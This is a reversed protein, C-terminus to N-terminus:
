VVSKRDKEVNFSQALDRLSSRFYNMSDIFNITIKDDESKLQIFISTDIMAKNLYFGKIENLIIKKWLGSIQLDYKINHAFFSCRLTEKALSIIKNILSNSDFGEYHNEGDFIDWIAMKQIEKDDEQYRFAETDFTFLFGFDFNKGKGKRIINNKLNM